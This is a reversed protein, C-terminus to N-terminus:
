QLLDIEKVGVGSNELAIGVPELENRVVKVLAHRRGFFGVLLFQFMNLKGKRGGAQHSLNKGQEGDGQKHISGM